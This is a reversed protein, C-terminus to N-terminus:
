SAGVRLWETVVGFNHVRVLESFRVRSGNRTLCNDYGVLGLESFQEAAIPYYPKGKPPLTLQHTPPRAHTLDVRLAM